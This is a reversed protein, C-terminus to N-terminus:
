THLCNFFNRTLNLPLYFKVGLIHYSSEKQSTFNLEKALIYIYTCLAVDVVKDVGICAWDQISGWTIHFTM